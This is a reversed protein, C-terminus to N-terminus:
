FAMKIELMVEKFIKILKIYKAGQDDGSEQYGM